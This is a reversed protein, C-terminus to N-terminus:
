SQQFCGPGVPFVSYISLVLISMTQPHRILPSDSRCDHAFPSRVSIRTCEACRMVSAFSLLLAMERLGDWAYRPRYYALWPV